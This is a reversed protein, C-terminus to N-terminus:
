FFLCTFGSSKSVSVDLLQLKVIKYYMKGQWPLPILIHKSAEKSDTSQCYEEAPLQTIGGWCRLSIASLFMFNWLAMM